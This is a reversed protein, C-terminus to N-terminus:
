DDPAVARLLAALLQAQSHVGFKRYIVTLHNRVTSASIFMSRAIDPPRQGAILRSVIETQRASLERGAPLHTLAPLADLTRAARAEVAAHRFHEDLDSQSHDGAVASPGASIVVGLRPPQHDCIAVILCYREAWRGEGARVRTLVTVAIRDTAARTVAALFATAASPHVLGLLPFGRLESGAVGLLEADASMYQIEWDHDTVALVVASAGMMLTGVADPLESTQLLVWLGYRHNRVEVRRGCVTLAREEGDPTVIRRRVQYGDIVNGAMAAYAAQASARDRPDVHLLVDEGVLDAAPAGFVRAAEDNLAVFTHSGLETVIAAVPLRELSRILEDLEGVGV